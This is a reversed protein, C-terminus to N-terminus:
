MNNVVTSVNLTGKFNPEASTKEQRESGALDLMKFSNITVTDDSEDKTYLKLEMIASSRSSSSNMEHAETNRESEVM